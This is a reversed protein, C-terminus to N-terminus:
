NATFNGRRGGEWSQSISKYISEVTAKNKLRFEVTKAHTTLPHQKVVMDNLNIGTTDDAKDLPGESQNFLNPTLTNTDSEIIDSIPSISYFRVLSNGTTDITVEDVVLTSEIIYQHYSVSTITSLSVMYNGGPLTAKWLVPKATPQNDQAQIESTLTFPILLSGLLTFLKVKTLPSHSHRHMM